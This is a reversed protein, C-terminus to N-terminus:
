NRIWFTSRYLLLWTPIITLLVVDVTWAYFLQYHSFYTDVDHSFENISPFIFKGNILIQALYYYLALFILPNLFVIFSFRCITRLFLHDFKSGGAFLYCPMLFCATLLAMSFNLLSLCGLLASGILLIIFQFYDFQNETSRFRPIILPSIFMTIQVVCMLSLKLPIWTLIYSLILCQFIELFISSYNVHFKMTRGHIAYTNESSSAFFSMYLALSRILAPLVILGLPIM